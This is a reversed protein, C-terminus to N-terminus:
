AGIERGPNLRGTPDFVTKLRRNLELVAAPLPSGAPAVAQSHVHGVGLEAVFTGPELGLTFLAGPEFTSSHGPLAPPGDVEALGVSAAENAVDTAHGELCVWTTAGDWLVSAPRYLSRRLAAVPADSRFWRTCAPLPRTRLTVGGIFALTGRSGVLLRCLDFGSVNKVTPGGAKAVVGDASVVRAELLCDRMPGRGLRYITEVGDALAGGVTGTAPMAVLQGAAELAMALEGVPTAAGCTITMEEPQYAWIGTPARVSRVGPVAGDRSSAGVITVAGAAGVDTAFAELANLDM